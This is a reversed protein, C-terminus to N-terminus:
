YLLLKFIIYKCISLQLFQTGKKYQILFNYLVNQNYSIDAFIVFQILLSVPWGLIIHTSHIREVKMKALQRGCCAGFQIALSWTVSLSALYYCVCIVIVVLIWTHKPFSCINICVMRMLCLNTCWVLNRVSHGFCMFVLCGAANLFAVQPRHNGALFLRFWAFAISNKITEFM